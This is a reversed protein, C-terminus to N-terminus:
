LLNTDLPDLSRQHRFRYATARRRRYCVRRL